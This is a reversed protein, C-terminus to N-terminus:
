PSSKPRSKSASRAPANTRVKSSRRRVAGRLSKRRFWSIPEIGLQKEPRIVCESATKYTGRIDNDRLKKKDNEAAHALLVREAEAAAPRGPEIRRLPVVAERIKMDMGLKQSAIKSM